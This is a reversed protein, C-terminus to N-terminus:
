GSVRLYHHRSEGQGEQSTDRAAMQSDLASSEDHKVHSSESVEANSFSVHGVTAQPVQDRKSNIEKQSM